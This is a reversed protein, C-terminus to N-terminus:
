EPRGWFAPPCELREASATIGFCEFAGRVRELSADAIEERLARPFRRLLQFREPPRTFEGAGVFESAQQFLLDGLEILRKGSAKLEHM